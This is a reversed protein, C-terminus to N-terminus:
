VNDTGNGGVGNDFLIKITENTLTGSLTAVTDWNAGGTAGNADVQLANGVLQVYGAAELDTGLAVDLLASLDISDGQLGVGSYDTIIDAIGISLSDLGIVFTDAETGGTMTDSGAGGNLIDIGGQGNLVDSGSGGYLLDNGTGANITDNGRGGSLIDDLANSGTLTDNGDLGMLNRITATTALAADDGNTGSLSLNDPYLQAQLIGTIGDGDGDTGLVPIAVSFPTVDNTSTFSISTLKFSDSQGTAPNNVGTIEIADFLTAGAFVQIKDDNAFNTITWTGDGNLTAVPATGGSVNTVVVTIGTVTVDGADGVFNTDADANVARIIMIPSSAVNDTTTTFNSIGYHDGFVKTTGNTSANTVFDFRITEGGAIDQGTDVGFHGTSTNVAPRAM